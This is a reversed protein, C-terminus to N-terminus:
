SALPVIVERQRRAGSAHTDDANITESTDPHVAHCRAHIRRLTEGAKEASAVDGYTITTGYRRRVRSSWHHRPSRRWTAAVAGTQGPPVTREVWAERCVVYRAIRLMTRRLRPM